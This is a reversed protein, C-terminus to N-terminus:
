REKAAYETHFYKGSEVVRSKVLGLKKLARCTRAEGRGPHLWGPHIARLYQLMSEMNKTM